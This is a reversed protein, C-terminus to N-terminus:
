HKSSSAMFQNILRYTIKKTKESVNVRVVGEDPQGYFIVSGLPAALILPLVSLDEEGEIELIIRKDKHRKFLDVVASFLSPTLCGAPNKADIAKIRSSFGLEALNSFRKKRAVKFDIVSINQNFNLENLTKATIDGVAILYPCGPRRLRKTKRFLTGFPRKFDERLKETIFLNGSFWLPNIYSRGDRNIEGNRIRSSSIYGNDESKILPYIEVMLPSKRQEKRKLNVREAGSVTNESVIIAEIELSEWIKPLYIDDIPAISVRDILKEEKLFQELQQKRTQYNDVREGKNKEKVYKDTTLGILLKLSKSLAYRLFEKHGKHFHDFTGGCVVLNYKM